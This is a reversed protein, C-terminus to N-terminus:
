EDGSDSDLVEREELPPLEFRCTPREMLYLFTLGVYDNILENNEPAHEITQRISESFSYVDGLMLRYGGTRGLQKDYGLCGSLPYSRREVWRGPVDYWGGNYFDESGTGHIVLEGDITTKDDGEFFLPIGSEFAQSQQFCGVLHGEGKTEIFTFPEGKTTPNERRWLAYFKGEDSKRPTPETVVEVQIEVPDGETQESTIELKASQDFPMPFYLYNTEDSTGVLLSRTAPEGWAYGFLDGVPSLIAPQSDGDWFARLVKERGKGAFASAPSLRVGVIRGPEDTEFITRTEGPKLKHQSRHVQRAEADIAGHSTIDSGSSAILEKAQERNRLYEDSAPWEFSALETQDPYVSYNIQYFQLKEARIVIKCSEAFTLPVYSYFGGSGSGVLPQPFAEHKGSFLDEFPLSLRPTSEGDFYIDVVDDTPTPTWIRHIVGPGEIDLLVLGDAEKRVFSYKGSFGDDNGGTRDYSSQSAVRISKKLTPLRDIRSLSEIGLSPESGLIPPAILLSSILCCVSFLRM